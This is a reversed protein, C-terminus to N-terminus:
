QGPEGDDPEPSIALDEASSSGEEDAGSVDNMVIDELSDEDEVQGDTGVSARRDESDRAEDLDVSEHDHSIMSPEFDLLFRTEADEPKREPASTDTDNSCAWVWVTYV